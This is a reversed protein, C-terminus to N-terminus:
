PDEAYVRCQCVSKCGNRQLLVYDGGEVLDESNWVLESGVQGNPTRRSLSWSATREQTPLLLWVYVHLSIATLRPRMTFGSPDAVTTIPQSVM